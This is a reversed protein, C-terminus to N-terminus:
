LVPKLRCSKFTGTKLSSGYALTKTQKNRVKTTKKTLIFDERSYKRTTKTYECENMKAKDLPVHLNSHLIPMEGEKTIVMTHVFRCAYRLHPLGNRFLFSWEKVQFDLGVGM